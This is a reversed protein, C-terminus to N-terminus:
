PLPVWKQHTESYWVATGYPTMFTVKAYQYDTDMYGLVNIHGADRDDDTLIIPKCTIRRNTPLNYVNVLVPTANTSSFTVEGTSPNFSGTADVVFFTSVSEQEGGTATITYLGASVSEIAFDEIASTTLVMDGDHTVTITTYDKPDIVHIQVDEGVMFVAADGFETQIDPYTIETETEDFNLVYPIQEYPVAALNRFRRAIYGARATMFAEWSSYVTTRPVPRWEEIVKVSKIRGYDDKAIESIMACHGDIWIMDGRQIAEMPVTEFLDDDEGLYYNTLDLDLAMAVNVLGSCVTGYYTSSNSVTSRRTYLVSRPDKVATMFTRFSVDMGIAKDQDRVSSYPLGTQETLPFYQIPDVNSSSSTVKPMNAVPTWKISMVKNANALANAIGWSATSGSADSNSISKANLSNWDSWKKSSHYRVIITSTLTIVLQSVLSSSGMVLMTAATKTPSNSPIGSSPSWRYIGPSYITDVDDEGTLVGEFGIKNDIVSQSIRRWTGSSAWGSEGHYRSFLDGTYSIVFQSVSTGAGVVIMTGANVTPSNAPVSSSIWRYVGPALVENMDNANTLVGKYGITLAADAAKGSVSFSTDTGNFNYFAVNEGGTTTIASDNQYAAVIRYTYGTALWISGGTIWGYHGIYQDTSAGSYRHVYVKMNSPFVVNLFETPTIYDSRIRTSSSSPGGTTGDITGQIWSVSMASMIMLSTLANRLGETQTRVATGASAYTVGDAGVRIDVLETDTTVAAIANAFQASLTSVTSAAQSASSAAAAKSVDAATASTEAQESYYKSNNHYTIDTESVDEGLRTGVAYAEADQRYDLNERLEDVVGLMYQHDQEMQEIETLDGTYNGPTNLHREVYFAADFTSWKVTVEDDIARIGVKITGPVQLQSSTIEWTLFIFEDAIEKSLIMTDTGGNAYKLDLRFTLASLDVGRQSFRSIRFVRNESATDYTTGIYQETDPIIMERNMVIIM